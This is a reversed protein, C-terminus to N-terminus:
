SRVLIGVVVTGNAVAQCGRELSIVEVVKVYLLLRAPDKELSGEVYTSRWSADMERTHM